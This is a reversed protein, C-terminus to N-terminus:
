DAKGGRQRFVHSKEEDESLIFACDFATFTGEFNCLRLKPSRGYEMVFKAVATDFANKMVIDPFGVRNVVVSVRRIM